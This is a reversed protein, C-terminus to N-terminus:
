AALAVGATAARLQARLRTVLERLERVEARAADREGAIERVDAMLELEGLTPGDSLYEPM